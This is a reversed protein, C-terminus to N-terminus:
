EFRRFQYGKAILYSLLEPLRLYLKDTRSAETGVHILLHFGNLGATNTTEYRKIRQLITDSSIYNKMDPTTYDANSSTGPSFNVMTLGMGQVLEYVEKNYWEYPPMFYKMKALPIKLKKLEKLNDKIDKRIVPITELLSDRKNWDCYLLHKNSHPGVYHGDKYLQKVWQPDKRVFDGTLFFSAKISFSDLVYKVYPLGEYLEHATFNLYIIKRTTDARYFAGADERLARERPYPQSQMNPGPAAQMNVTPQAQIKLACILM